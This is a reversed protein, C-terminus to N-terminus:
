CFSFSLGIIWLMAFWVWFDARWIWGAALSLLIMVLLGYRFPSVQTHFYHPSEM